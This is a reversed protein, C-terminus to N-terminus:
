RIHHPYKRYEEESMPPSNRNRPTFHQKKEGWFDNLRAIGTGLLFWGVLRIEQLPELYATAVLLSISLAIICIGQNIRM